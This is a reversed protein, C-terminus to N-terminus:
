MYMVQLALVAESIVLMEVRALKDRPERAWADLTEIGGASGVQTDGSHSAGSGGGVGGGLDVSRRRCGLVVVVAVAATHITLCHAICCNRCLLLLLLTFLLCHAICCNRCSLLLLLHAIPVVV